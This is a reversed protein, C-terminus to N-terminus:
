PADSAGKSRFSAGAFNARRTGTQRSETLLKLRPTGPQAASQRAIMLEGDHRRRDCARQRDGV